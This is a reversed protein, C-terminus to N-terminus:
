WQEEPSNLESEKLRYISRYINKLQKIDGLINADRTKLFFLYEKILGIAKESDPIPDKNLFEPIKNYFLGSFEGFGLCNLRFENKELPKFLTSIIMSKLINDVNEESIKSNGIIDNFFLKTEGKENMEQLIQFRTINALLDDRRKNYHSKEIEKVLDQLIENIAQYFEHRKKLNFDITHILFLIYSNKQIDPGQFISSFNSYFDKLASLPFVLPIGYIKQIENPVDWVLDNNDIATLESALESQIANLTNQINEVVRPKEISIRSIELQEQSAKVSKYTFYALLGTGIAVGLSAITTISVGFFGIEDM